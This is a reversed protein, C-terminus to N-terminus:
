KRGTSENVYDLYLQLIQCIRRLIDMSVNKNKRKATTTLTTGIADGYIVQIFKLETEVLICCFRYLFIHKNRVHHLSRINKKINDFMVGKSLHFIVQKLKWLKIGLFGM